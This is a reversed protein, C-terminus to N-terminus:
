KNHIKFQISSDKKKMEEMDEYRIWGKPRPEYFSADFKGIYAAGLQIEEGMLDWDPALPCDQLKLHKLFITVIGLYVAAHCGVFMSKRFAGLMSGAVMGAIGANLATDKKRWITLLHMVSPYTVAVAVPPPIYIWFRAIFAAPCRPQSIAFIDITSAAVGLRCAYGALVKIKKFVDEGDPTDYYQYRYRFKIPVFLM